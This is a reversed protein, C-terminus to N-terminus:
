TTANGTPTLTLANVGHNSENWWGWAAVGLRAIAPARSSNMQQAKETLTMRSVLDAARETASYHRNLFIPDPTPPGASAAPLGSLGAAGVAGVALLVIARRRSRSQAFFM